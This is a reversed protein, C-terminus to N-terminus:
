GADFLALVEEPTDIILEAGSAALEGRGRFGWAAGVPFMGAALATRMDVASDGLYALEGPDLGMGRAVSLAGAPDPKPALGELVGQIPAIPWRGLYHEVAMLTFRHPKNSLVAMPIGRAALRDLLAPIGEYVRTRRNWCRAYEQDFLRVGRTVMGRERSGEPLARALLREVGEGVMLRCGALDHPPFGLIRLTTNLADAIDDITDLLTGDLDLLLGRAPPRGDPSIDRRATM